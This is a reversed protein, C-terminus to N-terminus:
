LYQRSLRPLPAPKKSSKKGAVCYSYVGRAPPNAFFDSYANDPLLRNVVFEARQM